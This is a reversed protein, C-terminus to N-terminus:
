RVLRITQLSMGPETKAPSLSGLRTWTSRKGTVWRLQNLKRTPYPFKSKFHRFQSERSSIFVIFQGGRMQHNLTNRTPILSPDSPGLINLTKLSPNTLSMRHSSRLSFVLYVLLGRGKIPTRKHPAQTVLLVNKSCSGYM